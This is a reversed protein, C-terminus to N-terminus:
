AEAGMDIPNIYQEEIRSGTGYWPSSIVVIIETLKLRNASSKPIDIYWTRKPEDSRSEMM